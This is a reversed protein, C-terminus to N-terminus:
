AIHRSPLSSTLAHLSLIYQSFNASLSPTGGSCYFFSLFVLLFSVVDFLDLVSVLLLSASRSISRCPNPGLSGTRNSYSPQKAREAYEYLALVLEARKRASLHRRRINRSVVYKWAPGKTAEDYEETYDRLEWGLEEIARARHIGDLIAGEFVVIKERLGNAEIDAKLQQFEEDPMPPFMAALPHIPITM